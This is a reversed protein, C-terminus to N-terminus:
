IRAIERIKGKLLLLLHRKTWIGARRMFGALTTIGGLRDRIEAYPLDNFILGHVKNTGVDGLFQQQDQTSLPGDLKAAAAQEDGGHAVITNNIKIKKGFFPANIAIKINSRLLGTDKPVDRAAFQHGSVLSKLVSIYTGDRLLAQKLVLSKQLAAVGTLQSSIPM